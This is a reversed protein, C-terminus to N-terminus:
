FEPSGLQRVGRRDGLLSCPSRRVRPFPISPPPTSRCHRGFTIIDPAPRGCAEWILGPVPSPMPTPWGSRSPLMGYLTPAPDPLNLLLDYDGSPMDTPLAIQANLLHNAGPLWRRADTDRSLQAFFKESTTSHRLVLEIGRPNFPAAFGVNTFELTLPIVQGPQAETRFRGSVLQLRYGLRRKISEICGGTVWDDNVDANYAQNLYSYHFLAMDSDASGGAAACDDTPPNM